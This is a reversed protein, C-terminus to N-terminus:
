PILCLSLQRFFHEKYYCLLKWLADEGSSTLCIKMNDSLKYTKHIVKVLDKGLNGGPHFNGFQNKKFGKM